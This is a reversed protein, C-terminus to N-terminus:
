ADEADDLAQMWAWQINEEATVLVEHLMDIWADPDPMLFIRIPKAQPPLEGPEFLVIEIVDGDVRYIFGRIVEDENNTHVFQGPKVEDPSQCKISYHQAKM